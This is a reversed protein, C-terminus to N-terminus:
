KIFNNNGRKIYNRKESLHDHKKWQQTEVDWEKPIYDAGQKTAGHHCNRCGPEIEKRLGNM